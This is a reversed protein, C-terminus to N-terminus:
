KGGKKRDTDPPPERPLREATVTATSRPNADKAMAPDTVVITKVEPVNAASVILGTNTKVMVGWLLMAFSSLLASVVESNLIASFQEATVATIWGKAAFWGGLFCGIGIVTSRLLSKWQEPNM